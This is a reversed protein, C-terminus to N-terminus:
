SCNWNVTLTTAHTNLMMEDEMKLCDTKVVTCISQTLMIISLRAESAREVSGGLVWFISLCRGTLLDSDNIVLVMILCIMM